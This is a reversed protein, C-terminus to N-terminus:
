RKASEAATGCIQESLPTGFTHADQPLVEACLDLLSNFRVLVICLQPGIMVLGTRWGQLPPTTFIDGFCEKVPKRAAFIPQILTPSSM